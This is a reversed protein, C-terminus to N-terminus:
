RAVGRRQSIWRYYSWAFPVGGFILVVAAVMILILMPADPITGVASLIFLVVFTLALFVGLCMMGFGVVTAIWTRTPVGNRLAERASKEVPQDSGGTRAPTDVHPRTPSPIHNTFLYTDIATVGHRLVIPPVKTFDTYGESALFQGASVGARDYLRRSMVLAVILAAMGIIFLGVMIPFAIAPTVQLLALVGDLLLGLFM